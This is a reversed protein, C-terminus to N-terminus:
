NFGEIFSKMRDVSNLQGGFIMMVGLELASHDQTEEHKRMDSVFSTYAQAVDGETDLIEFARDKCWQLHEARTIMIKM